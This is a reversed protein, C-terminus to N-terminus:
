QLFFLNSYFEKYFMEFNSKISEWLGRDFTIKDIVIGHTTWVVIYATKTKTFYKHNQKLKVAGGDKYSCDLIQENSETYNISCPCKIEICAEVCCSCLMLRDPSAGFYPMTEDLVLGCESVNCDQHCNTIYEAFTNAVEIEM